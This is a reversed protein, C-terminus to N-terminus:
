AFATYRVGLNLEKRKRWKVGQGLRSFTTPQLGVKRGNSDPLPRWNRPCPIFATSKDELCTCALELRAAREMKLNYMGHKSPLSRSASSWAYRPARNSHLIRFDKSSVSCSNHNSLSTRSQHFSCLCLSKPYGDARALTELVCALPPLM